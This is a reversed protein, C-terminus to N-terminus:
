AASARKEALERKLWGANYFCWKSLQQVEAGTRVIHDLLRCEAETLGPRQRYYVPTFDFPRQNM